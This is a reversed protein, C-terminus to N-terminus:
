DIWYKYILAMYLRTTKTCLNRYDNYIMECLKAVAQEDIIVEPRQPPSIEEIDSISLADSEENTQSGQEQSSEKDEMVPPDSVNQNIPVTEALLTEPRVYNAQSVTSSEDTEESQTIRQPEITIPLPPYVKRNRDVNYANFSMLIEKVNEVCEREFEVQFDDSWESIPIASPTDSIVGKDTPQSQVASEKMKRLRPYVKRAKRNRDAEYTNYSMLIEKVNEVCEREFEVQFDDSWESIPIAPTGSIVGKDTPQSQVASEKM